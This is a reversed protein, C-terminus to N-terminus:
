VALAVSNKRPRGRGRKEPYSWAETRTKEIWRAIDCVLIRGDGGDGLPQIIHPARGTARLEKLHYQSLKMMRMFEPVTVVHQGDFIELLHAELEDGQLCEPMKELIANM